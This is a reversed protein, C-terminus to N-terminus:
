FDMIKTEVNFQANKGKMQNKMTRVLKVPNGFHDIHEGKMEFRISGDELENEPTVPNETHFLLVMSPDSGKPAEKARIVMHGLYIKSMAPVSAKDPHEEAYTGGLEADEKVTVQIGGEFCKDGPHIIRSVGDGVSVVKSNLRSDMTFHSVEYKDDVLLTGDDQPVGAETDIGFRNNLFSHTVDTMVTFESNGYGLIAKHFAEGNAKDNLGAGSPLVGEARTVFSTVHIQQGAKRAEKAAKYTGKAFVKLKHARKAAKVRAYIVRAKVAANRFDKYQTRAGSVDYQDGTKFTSYDDVSAIHGIMMGSFQADLGYAPPMIALRKEGSTVAQYVDDTDVIGSFKEEGEQKYQELFRILLTPDDMHAYLSAINVANEELEETTDAEAVVLRAADEPSKAKGRTLIFERAFKFFDHRLGEKSVKTPKDYQSEPTLASTASTHMKGAREQVKEYTEKYPMEDTIDLGFPDSLVDAMISPLTKKSDFLNTRGTVSKFTCPTSSPCFFGM